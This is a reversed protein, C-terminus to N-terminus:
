PLKVLNGQLPVPLDPMCGGAELDRVGLSIALAPLSVVGM